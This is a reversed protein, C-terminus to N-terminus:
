GYDCEIGKTGNKECLLRGEAGQPFGPRNNLLWLCSNSPVYFLHDGVCLVGLSYFFFLFFAIVKM